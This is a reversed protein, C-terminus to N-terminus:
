TVMIKNNDNVNWANSSSQLPTVLWFNVISPKKTKKPYVKLNIKGSNSWSHQPDDWTTSLCPFLFVNNQEPKIQM